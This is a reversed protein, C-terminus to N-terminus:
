FVVSFIGSIKFGNYAQYGGINEDFDESQLYDCNVGLQVNKGTRYIFGSSLEVFAANSKFDFENRNIGNTINGSAEVYTYRAPVIGVGFGAYPRFRQKLFYYDMGVSIPMLFIGGGEVDIDAGNIVSFIDPRPPEIKKVMIGLHINVSLSTSLYRAFSLEWAGMSQPIEILSEESSKASHNFRWVGYSLSLRNKRDKDNSKNFSLKIADESIKDVSAAWLYNQLFLQYATDLANDDIADFFYLKVSNYLQLSDKLITYTQQNSTIYATAAFYYNLLDRLAATKRINQNIGLLYIKDRAVTFEHMIKQIIAKLSDVELTTDTASELQLIISQKDTAFQQLLSDTAQNKYCVILPYSKGQGQYNDPIIMSYKKDGAASQQAECINMFATLMFVVLVIKKPDM